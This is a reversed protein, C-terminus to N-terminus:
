VMDQKPTFAQCSNKKFLKDVNETAIPSKDIFVARYISCDGPTRPKRNACKTCIRDQIRMLDSFRM